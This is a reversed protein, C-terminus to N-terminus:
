LGLSDLLGQFPGCRVLALRVAVAAKQKDRRRANATLLAGGLVREATATAQALRPLPPQYGPASLFQQALAAAAPDVQQPPGLMELRYKVLQRQRERRANAAADARDVKERAIAALKVADALACREASGESTADAAQQLAPMANELKELDARATGLKRVAKALETQAAKQAKQTAKLAKQAAM